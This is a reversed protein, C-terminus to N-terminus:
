FSAKLAFVGKFEKAETDYLPASWVTFNKSIHWQFRIGSGYYRRSMLGLSVKDVRYDLHSTWWHDDSHVGKELVLLYSLKKNKSMWFFSPSVRFSMNNPANQEIGLNLGFSVQGISYSAGYYVEGWSKTVLAFFGHSWHDNIVSKTGMTTTPILQDGQYRVNQEIFYHTQALGTMSMSVILVVFIVLRKM